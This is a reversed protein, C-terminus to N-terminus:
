RRLLEIDQWKGSLEEIFKEKELPSILTIGFKSHRIEIRDLSLAASSLPSRTEKMSKINGYKIREVMPGCRVYLYDDELIYYTSFWIWATLGIVAVMVVFAIMAEGDSETSTLSAVLWFLLPVWLIVGIWWDRKSYYRMKSYVEIM